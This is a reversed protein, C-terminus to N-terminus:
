FHFPIQSIDLGQILEMHQPRKNQFAQLYFMRRADSCFTIGTFMNVLYNRSSM